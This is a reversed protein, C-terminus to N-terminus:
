KIHFPLLHSHSKLARKVKVKLTTERLPKSLYDFFGKEFAHAEEDPDSSASILIVPIDNVEPINRLSDLLGYGNLKPMEKDTIVLKPRKSIVERFAEMGDMATIVHYGESKMTKSLVTLTFKDDEVILITNDDDIVWERNLYHRAIAKNIDKRTAIFPHIRMKNNQRLNNIVKENTPDHLALALVGNQVKLPFVVHEVATELPVLDLVEKGFRYDAFGAVIKYGYQIALAQALEESTVLGIEELIAGFRKGSKACLPLVREVTFRTLIGNEVLIEGLMKRGNGKIEKSLFKYDNSFGSM